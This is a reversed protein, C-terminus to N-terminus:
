KGIPYIASPNAIIRDDPQGTTMIGYLASVLDPRASRKTQDFAGASLKVGGRSVVEGTVPHYEDPIIQFFGTKKTHHSWASDGMVTRILDASVMGGAALGSANLFAATHSFLEAGKLDGRYKPRLAFRVGVAPAVIGGTVHSGKPADAPAQESAEAPAEPPTQAEAPTEPQAQEAPAESAQADAERQAQEARALMDAPTLTAPAQDVPRNIRPARPTKQTQTKAM